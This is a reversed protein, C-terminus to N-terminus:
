IVMKGFWPFSRYYDIFNNMHLDAEVKEGGIYYGLTNTIQQCDAGPLMREIELRERVSLSPLSINRLANWDEAYYQWNRFKTSEFFNEAENVNLIIATASIMKQGDEYVFASLPVVRLEHSASLGKYAARKISKLLVSPFRRHTMDDVSIDEPFYDETIIEKAKDLRFSNLDIDKSDPNGLNSSNANMTVKFIDGDALKSVLTHLDHLQSEIDNFRVFDLWVISKKTFDHQDIFETSSYSRDPITICSLPRNFEQRRKVNENQEISIMDTIKLEQHLQKFDELFPGGFGIYCYESVDSYHAIKKLADILLAREVAKNHRLHYPISAGSSM